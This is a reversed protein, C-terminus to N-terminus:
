EHWRQTEFTQNQTQDQSFASHQSSVAKESFAEEEDVTERVM